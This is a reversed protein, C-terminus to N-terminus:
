PAFSFSARGPMATSWASPRLSRSWFDFRPSAPSGNGPLLPLLRMVPEVDGPRSGLTPPVDVMWSRLM